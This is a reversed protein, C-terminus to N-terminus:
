RRHVQEDGLRQFEADQRIPALAADPLIKDQWFSLREQPRVMTLTQRVAELARRRYRDALAQRGAEQCDAEARAVAQAFICAINHMMEPTSPQRCVAAEADAIAERYHGLMVRALGRGVYADGVAPDLEIAKAFDRLALKWADAFFHAWGRHQYVDVDPAQELARTYDDVADLYKGLKMRALGRGRFIDSKAEGGKHLYQDFSKEAQEYRGLALLARGRVECPLPQQPALELAAACAQIAEEYRRHRLLNRGRELHYGAVVQAPPGLRLATKLQEAAKEFQGQALLVQALNLYANYQEPKLAIASGFDAAARELEKQNFYLIGRTLYLVYRADENPNLQLAQHFDAEAEPVARLKENAFSRFLYAWVFDPQQILCANLGAKAAEWQRVKLHCVALFFQAWFHAPQLSLAHNFSSMAQEWDGRRYQEEGQLFYDLAGEPPLSAARARDQSAEQHEGLLELFHARRLHYARTQFGFQRARDLIRLVDRYGEKGAAGALFERWRVSALVLLLSYCDTAMEAQRSAPFGPALAAAESEVDVGALALAERAASEAAKGTAAAEAGLFLSGEDPTLLGYLLAENRRQVFQQYKAEARHHELQDAARFYSWATLLLCVLAVAGLTGAVLAPRRRASRWLRQWVPVPRAQIPRGELFCHLDDALAQASPYRKGPDKELCKLCITELDLSVSPRLRRPPVPEQNRVQLLTSLPTAGQFPARGTLLEYLIAGLSYVDAPVGVKKTEGAAQEPAMYSPTGLLTESRTLGSDADLLKALGFDTIKPTGDATLLINTPKLDRHLIGRQHMAHVARALTEVLRAAEREPQATGGTKRLLSGGDIHELCLFPRGDCEGVEYIQVVNPHQLRAVAEAETRFRERATSDAHLGALIMKVAVLRKLACQRAQYVVGMGGRGLEALIEYGPVAPLEANATPVVESLGAPNVAAAVKPTGLLARFPPAFGTRPEQSDTHGPEAKGDGPPLDNVMLVVQPSAGAPSVGDCM